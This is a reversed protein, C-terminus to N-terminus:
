LIEQKTVKKRLKYFKMLDKSSKCIDKIIKFYGMDGFESVFWQKREIRMFLHSASTKRIVVCPGDPDNVNLAYIGVHAAPSMHGVETM